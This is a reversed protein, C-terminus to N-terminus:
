VYEAFGVPVLSLVSEAFTRLSAVVWDAARADDAARYVALIIVTGAGAGSCWGEGTGCDDHLLPPRLSLVRRDRRRLDRSRRYRLDLAAEDASGPPSRRLDGLDLRGPVPRADARVLDRLHGGAGQWGLLAVHM